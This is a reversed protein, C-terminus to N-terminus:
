GSLWSPFEQGGQIKLAAEKFGTYPVTYVPLPGTQTSSTSGKWRRRIDRLIKNM